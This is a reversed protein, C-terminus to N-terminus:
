HCWRFGRRDDLDLSVKCFADIAEQSMLPLNQTDLEKLKKGAVYAPLVELYPEQFFVGPTDLLRQREEEFLKSNTGFASKVYRKLHEKLDEWAGIPDIDISVSM